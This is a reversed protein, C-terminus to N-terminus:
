HETGAVPGALGAASSLVGRGLAGEAESRPSPQLCCSTGPIGVAGSPLCRQAPGPGTGWVALAAEAGDRLEGRGRPTHWGTSAGGGSAVVGGQSGEPLQAGAERRGGGLTWLKGRGCDVGQTGM